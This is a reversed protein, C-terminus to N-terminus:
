RRTPINQVDSLAQYIIDMGTKESGEIKICVDSVHRLKELEEKLRKAEEISYCFVTNTFDKNKYLIYEIKIEV